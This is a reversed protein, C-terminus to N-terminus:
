VRGRWADPDGDGLDTGDAASALDAAKLKIGVRVKRGTAKDRDVYFQAETLQKGFTTQKMIMDDKDGRYLCFQRFNEYLDTAGVHATPDTCDCNSELWDALASGTAWFSSAAIRALEPEPVDGSDLWELAGTIMWNLIGSIEKMLRAKVVHPAEDVLGPSVGYAKLWPLLGFRRRFGRDDSPANPLPNCEFILQWHPTYTIDEVANPARATIKSGTAQKIREGDWTSGKKPEDCVVMRIDGRLRVIDAQHESGGRDIRSQLFTKPSAPRFYDGHLSGIVDNTMSKGDGGKGQWIYFRQDSILGTLTMGYVRQLMTQAVPDDHLEDLRALWHPCRAQPDYAVAAVQMFMDAPDHGETFKVVWGDAMEVFRLTGNLCHYAYLDTDFEDLGARLLFRGDDDTLSQAQKIMGSTRDSNGTKMSWAFLHNVRENRLEDTFRPGYVRQVDEIAALKLARAEDVLGDGVALAVARARAGGDRANWRVADFWIWDGQRGIEGCFKLRGAAHVNFRLANGHDNLPWKSRVLIPDAAGATAPLGAAPEDDFM